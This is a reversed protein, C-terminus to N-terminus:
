RHGLKEKRIALADQLVAQWERHQMKRALSLHDLLFKDKSNAQIAADRYAAIPLRNSFSAFADLKDLIDLTTITRVCKECQCCNVVLSSQDNFKLPGECVYLSQQVERIGEVARLKESRTM